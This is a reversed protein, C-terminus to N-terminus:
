GRDGELRNCRTCTYISTPSAKIAPLGIGFALRAWYEQLGNSRGTSMEIDNEAAFVLRV